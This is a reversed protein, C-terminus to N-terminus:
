KTPPMRKLTKNDLYWPKATFNRILKEDRDSTISYLVGAFRVVEQFFLDVICAADM